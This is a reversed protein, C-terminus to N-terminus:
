GKLGSKNGRCGSATVTPVGHSLEFLLFQALGEPGNGVLQTARHIRVVEAVIHQSKEEQAIQRVVVLGGRLLLQPRVIWVKRGIHQPLGAHIRRKLRPVLFIQAVYGLELLLHAALHMVNDFGLVQPAVDGLHRARLIGLQQM